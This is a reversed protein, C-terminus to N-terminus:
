LICPILATKNTTEITKNKNQLPSAGIMQCGRRFDAHFLFIFINCQNTVYGLGVWGREFDAYLTLPFNATQIVFPFNVYNTLLGHIM